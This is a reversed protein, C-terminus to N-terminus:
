RTLVLAALGLFILFGLSDTLGTLLISSGLAPDQGARKLGVPILVGALSALLLNLVMAAFMVWGLNAQHYIFWVVLGMLGGWILGNLLGIGLEKGMLRRFNGGELQGLGLGRIVLALTQNGTNGGVSATIPLLAALAVVQTITHEFQGIIRSAIFAILLNLGLWPWRNRGSHWVPAFLDEEERLGAQALLDRQSTEHVYDLVEDILLYGVPQNHANVVPAAILDYREFAGAAESASDDTHFVVPHRRMVDGVRTEGAHTLIAELALTGQLTNERDVVLLPASAAPLRERRRLYRLVVDLSNEERVALFDFDMIAGVTHEPFRLASQVREREQHELSALLDPVLQQPLDPVLEAIDDSDMHGAARLIEGSDMDALLSDRVSDSVELLVAGDLAHDVLEWLTKRRDLPQRELVYAIDAPHLQNIQRRLENAQQKAVLGQVLEHRRMHQKTVLSSILAQKDMLENIHALISQLNKHHRDAQQMVIGQKRRAGPIIALM